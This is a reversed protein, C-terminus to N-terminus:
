SQITEKKLVHCNEYISFENLDEKDDAQIFGRKMWFYCSEELALCLIRYEPFHSEVYHVLASGMGCGPLSSYMYEIVVMHWLHSVMVRIAALIRGSAIDRAGFYEFSYGTDENLENHMEDFYILLCDEAESQEIPGIDYLTNSM